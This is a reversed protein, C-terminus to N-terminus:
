MLLETCLIYTLNPLLKNKATVYSHCLHFSLSLKLSSYAIVQLGEQIDQLCSWFSAQEKDKEDVAFCLIIFTFLKNTTLLFNVLQM